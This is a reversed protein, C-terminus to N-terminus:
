FNPIRSSISSFAICVEFKASELVNLFLYIIRALGHYKAAQDNIFILSFSRCGITMWVILLCM